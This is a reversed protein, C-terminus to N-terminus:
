QKKLFRGSADRKNWYRTGDHSVEFDLEIKEKTYLPADFASVAAGKTHEGVVEYKWCRGKSNDYDSPIAVVDAPNIKVIMIRDTGGSSGYHQMYPLSAFHLGVSCTRHRDADVLSRDMMQVAGVSNDNRTGDPNAHISKYNGDVKRYALFHGDDTIPLGCKDLFLYLEDIATQSPNSLVNKVFLEFYKVDAGSEFLEFLKDTMVNHLPKGKYIVSGGKIVVDDKFAEKIAKKKSVVSLVKIYDKNAIHKIVEDFRSDDRSLSYPKGDAIITLEKDTTAWMFKKPNPIKDSM